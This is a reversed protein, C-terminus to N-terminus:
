LGLVNNRIDGGGGLLIDPVEKAKSSEYCSKFLM